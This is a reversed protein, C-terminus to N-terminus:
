YYSQEAELVDEAHDKRMKVKLRLSWSPPSKRMVLYGGWGKAAAMDAIQKELATLSVTAQLRVYTAYGGVIIAGLPARM